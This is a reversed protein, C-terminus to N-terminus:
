GVVSVVPELVVPASVVPAGPAVVPAVVPAAPVVVPVVSVVAVVLVGRPVVVPVVFVVLAMVGPVVGPRVSVALVVVAVVCFVPVLGVAPVGTASGVLLPALVEPAGLVPSVEPPAFVVVLLALLVAPLLAGDGLSPTIREVIGLPPSSGLVPPAETSAKSMPVAAIPAPNNNM